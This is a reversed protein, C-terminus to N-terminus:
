IVLRKIGNKLLEVNFNIILGIRKGTAKLYTLVQAIHINHISEVTKLEVIVENEILFDLRHKGIPRNKYKLDIEKQREFYIGKLEFEIVLAEEYVSELLGPGLNSHVEIASALINSTIDKHPYEYKTCLTKRQTRQPKM